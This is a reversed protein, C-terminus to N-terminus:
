PVCGIIVLASKNVAARATAIGADGPAKVGSCVSSRREIPSSSKEGIPRLQHEGDGIRRFSICPCSRQPQEVDRGAADALQRKEPLLSPEGRQDGSPEAIAKVESRSPVACSYTRDSRPPSASFSVSRFSRTPENRQDGSPDRIARSIFSAL